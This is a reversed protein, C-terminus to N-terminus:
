FFLYPNVYTDSKVITQPHQFEVPAELSIGYLMEPKFKKPSKRPVEHTRNDLFKLM